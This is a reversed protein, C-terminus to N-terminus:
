RRYVIVIIMVAHWSLVYRGITVISILTIISIACISDMLLRLSVIVLLIFLLRSILILVFRRGMRPMILLIRRMVFLTVLAVLLWCSSVLFFSSTDLMLTCSGFLSIISMMSSMLLFMLTRSILSFIMSLMRHRFPFWSFLLRIPRMSSSRLVLIFPVRFLSSICWIMVRFRFFIFFNDIRYNLMCFRNFLFSSTNSANLIYSVSVQMLCMLLRYVHPLKQRSFTYWVNKHIM